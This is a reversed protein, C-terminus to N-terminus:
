NILQKIMLEIRVGDCRGLQGVLYRDSDSDSDCDCYEACLM